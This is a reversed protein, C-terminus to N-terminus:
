KRLGAAELAEAEDRYGRVRVVRGGHVTWVSPIRQDVLLGSGRGRGSIRISAFVEHGAQVIKEIAFDVQEFAEFGHSSRPL